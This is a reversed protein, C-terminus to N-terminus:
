IAENAAFLLMYAVFWGAFTSATGNGIKARWLLAVIVAAALALGVFLVLGGSTASHGSHLLSVPGEAFLRIALM